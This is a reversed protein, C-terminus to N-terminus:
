EFQPDPEARNHRAWWLVIWSLYLMALALQWVTNFVFQRMFTESPVLWSLISPDLLGFRGLFAATSVPSSEFVYVNRVLGFNGVAGFLEGALAIVSLSVWAMLLSVPAMWWGFETWVRPTSEERLKRPLQLAVNAALQDPAPFDPLPVEALTGSLTELAELEARCSECRALHAEFKRRQQPNLEGDLYANLMEFKHDPM